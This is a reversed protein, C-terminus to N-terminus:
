LIPTCVLGMYGPGYGYGIVKAAEDLTEEAGLLAEAFLDRAL